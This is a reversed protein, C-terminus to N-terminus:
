HRNQSSITPTRNKETPMNKTEHQIKNQHSKYLWVSATWPQCRADDTWDCGPPQTDRVASHRCETVSTVVDSRVCITQYHPAMTSRHLSCVTVTRYVCGVQPVGLNAIADVKKVLYRSKCNICNIGKFL